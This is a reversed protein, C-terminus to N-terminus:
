CFDFNWSGNKHSQDDFEFYIINDTGNDIEVEFRIAGFSYSKPELEIKLIKALKRDAIKPNDKRKLIVPLIMGKKFSDINIEETRGNWLEYM